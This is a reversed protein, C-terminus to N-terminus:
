ASKSYVNEMKREKGKLPVSENKETQEQSEVPKYM